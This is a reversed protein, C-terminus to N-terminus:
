YFVSFFDYFNSKICNNQIKVRKKMPKFLSLYTTSSINRCFCTNKLTKYIPLIGLIQNKEFAM